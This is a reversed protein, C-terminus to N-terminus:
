NMQPIVIWGAATEFVAVNMKGEFLYPVAQLGFHQAPHDASWGAKGGAVFLADAVFREGTLHGIITLCMNEQCSSKEEVRFLASGPRHAGGMNGFKTNALTTEVDRIGLDKLFRTYPLRWQDPVSRTIAQPPMVQALAPVPQLVLVSALFSSIGALRMWAM